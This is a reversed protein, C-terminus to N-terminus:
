TGELLQLAKFLNQARIFGYYPVDLYDKPRFYIETKYEDWNFIGKKLVRKAKVITTPHHNKFRAYQHILRFMVEKYLLQKIELNLEDFDFSHTKQPKENKVKYRFSYPLSSLGTRKIEYSIHNRVAREQAPTLQDNGLLNDLNFM